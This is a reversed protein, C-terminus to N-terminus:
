SSKLHITYKFRDYFRGISDYTSKYTSCKKWNM